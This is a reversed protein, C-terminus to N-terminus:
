LKTLAGSQILEILVNWEEKKLVTRNCLSVTTKELAKERAALRSVLWAVASAAAATSIWLGIGVVGTADALALALFPGIAQGIGMVATIRGFATM